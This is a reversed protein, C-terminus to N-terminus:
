PETSGGGRRKKWHAQMRALQEARAKLYRSRRMEFDIQAQESRARIQEATESKSPEPPKGGAASM